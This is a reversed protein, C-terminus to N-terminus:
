RRSAVSHSEIQLWVDHREHPLVADSTAAAAVLRERLAKELSGRRAADIFAQVEVGVAHQGLETTSGTVVACQRASDVIVITM